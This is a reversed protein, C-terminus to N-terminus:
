REPELEWVYLIARGGRTRAVFGPEVEGYGADVLGGRIKGEFQGGAHDVVFRRRPATRQLESVFKSHPEHVYDHAMAGSDFLGRDVFPLVGFLAWYDGALLLGKEDPQMRSTIWEGALRRAEGDEATWLVAWDGTGGERMDAFWGVGGALQTALVLALLGERWRAGSLGRAALLTALLLPVLLYRERHIETLDLKGSVAGAAVLAVGLGAALALDERRRVAEVVGLALAILPLWALLGPFALPGESGGFGEIAKGGGFADIFGEASRSFREFGLTEADVATRRGLEGGGIGTAAAALRWGMLVFGGSAALITRRDLVKWVRLGVAPLVLAASLHLSLTFGAVAGLVGARRLSPAECLRDAALLTALAAAPVLAVSVGLRSWVIWLPMVALLAATQLGVGRRQGLLFGLWVSLVGGLAPWIRTLVPSAEFVWSLPAAFWPLWPGIWGPLLLPSTWLGAAAAQAHLLIRGEDGNFGPFSGLWLLRLLGAVGLILALKAKM